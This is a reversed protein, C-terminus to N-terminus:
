VTMENKTQVSRTSNCVHRIADVFGDPDQPSCSVQWKNGDREVFVRNTFDLAFDWRLRATECLGSNRHADQISDFKFSTLTSHVAITSDSLVQYQRPVFLLVGTVYIALSAAAHLVCRDLTQGILPDGGVYSLDLYLMRLLSSLCYLFLATIYALLWGNVQSPSSFVVVAKTDRPSSTLHHQAEQDEGAADFRDLLQVQHLLLPERVQANKFKNSSAM